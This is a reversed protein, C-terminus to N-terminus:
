RRDRAEEAPNLSELRWRKIAEIKEQLGVLRYFGALQSAADISHTFHLRKTLELVRPAKDAKCAAQILKILSKDLEVERKDLEPTSLEDGLADRALNIHIRERAVQEEIPAEKSEINRFPLRVPVEQILPRPFGPYEQRGKLILCMVTNQSLGVLWYSEDKGQKREFANTDLLRAWVARNPRRFNIM